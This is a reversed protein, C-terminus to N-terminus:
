MFEECFNLSSEVRWDWKVRKQKVKHGSCEAERSVTLKNQHSRTGYIAIRLSTFMVNVFFIDTQNIIKKNM